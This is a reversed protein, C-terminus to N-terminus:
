CAQLRLATALVTLVTADDVEYAQLWQVFIGGPNLRRSVAEYFETTYLAAVGARYPNSPESFVVDYTNKTALVYERGDAYIRRVRPHHLVDWNLERCRSAMEDIAPELEVVDVREIGRM